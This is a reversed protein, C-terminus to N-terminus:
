LSFEQDCHSYVTGLKCMHMVDEHLKVRHCVPHLGQHTVHCWLPRNEHGVVLAPFSKVKTLSIHKNIPPELYTHPTAPVM